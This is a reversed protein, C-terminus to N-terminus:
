GSNISPPGACACAQRYSDSYDSPEPPLPDVRHSWAHATGLCMPLCILGLSFFTLFFCIDTQCDTHRATTAPTAASVSVERGEPDASILVWVSHLLLLPSWGANVSSCCDQSDCNISFWTAVQSGCLSRGVTSGCLSRGAASCVGM